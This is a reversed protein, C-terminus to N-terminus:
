KFQIYHIYLEPIERVIMRDFRTNVNGGIFRIQDIGAITFGPLGVLLNIPRADPKKQVRYKYFDTIDFIFRKNEPQMTPDSLGSAILEQPSGFEDCTYLYLNEPEPINEYNELRPKIAIQAKVITRYLSNEQIYPVNLKMMYGNLGQIVGYNLMTFLIPNKETADKLDPKPVHKHHSFTFFSLDSNGRNSMSIYLPSSGQSSRHYYCRLEFSSKVSFFASNNEDPVLAFGKFYELFAWTDVLMSGGRAFLGYLEMGWEDSLKCYTSTLHEKQPFMQLTGVREGLPVTDINNFYPWQENFRPVEKLRYLYFRQMETTDGAIVKANSVVLTLSDYVFNESFDIAYSTSSPHLEFYSSSTTTGSTLDNVKGIVMTTDYVASTPFSDLRITSSEEIEFRKVEVFRTNDEFRKGIETIENECACLFFFAVILLPFIRM